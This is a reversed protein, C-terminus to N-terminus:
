GLWYRSESFCESVLIQEAVSLTRQLADLLMAGGIQQGQLRQDVALRALLLVLVLVPVPDPMNRRIKGPSDKHSVTGAALAYDAM